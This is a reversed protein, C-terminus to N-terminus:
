NYGHNQPLATNDNVLQVQGPPVPFVRMLAKMGKTQLIALDKGTRQCNFWRQGELYLELTRELAIKDRTEALSLNTLPNGSTMQAPLLFSQTIFLLLTLAFAIARLNTQIIRM